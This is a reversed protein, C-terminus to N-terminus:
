KVEKLHTAELSFFRVQQDNDYSDLLSKLDQLRPSSSESVAKILLHRLIERMELCLLLAMNLDPFVVEKKEYDCHAAYVNRFDVMTERFTTYQEPTLEIVSALRARIKVSTLEPDIEAITSDDFLQTYHTSDKYNNFIHCWQIVAIEGFCNRSFAWLEPTKETLANFYFVARICKRCATDIQWILDGQADTLMAEVPSPKFKPAQGIDQEYSAQSESPVLLSPHKKKMHKAINPVFIGCKFCPKLGNTEIWSKVEPIEIYKELEEPHNSLVHNAMGRVQRQCFPCPKKAKKPKKQEWYKPPKTRRIGNDLGIVGPQSLTNSIKEYLYGWGGCRFCQPNGGNCSCRM